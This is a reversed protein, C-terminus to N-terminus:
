EPRFTEVLLRCAAPEEGNPRWRCLLQYENRGRLVFVIRQRLKRGAREYSLEYRRAREGAVTVNQASDIRAHLGAALRDVVGDLEGVVRPWLEPRFPRVLRFVVVSVLEDSTAGPRADIRQPGQEVSWTRPVSVGFGPGRVARAELPSGKGGGGCGALLLAAAVTSLTLAPPYVRM